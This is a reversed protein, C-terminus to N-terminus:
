LVSVRDPHRAQGRPGCGRGPLTGTGRPRAFFLETRLQVSLMKNKFKSLCFFALRWGHRPLVPPWKRNEDRWATSPPVQWTCSLVWCAFCLHSVGVGVNGALTAASSTHASLGRPLGELPPALHSPPSCPGWAPGPTRTSLEQSPSRHSQTHCPNWPSPTRHSQLGRAVRGDWPTQLPSGPGRSM